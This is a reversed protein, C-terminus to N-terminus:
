NVIIKRSHTGTDDEFVVLYVGNALNKLRYDIITTESEPIGRYVEDIRAGKIDYLSIRTL